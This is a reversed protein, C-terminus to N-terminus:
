EETFRIKWFRISSRKWTYSIYLTNGDAIVAPYSYEGAGSDLVMVEQFSQGDDASTFLTMPTREGWNRAVPNCVLFLRRTVTRVLDLGSNNNPMDTPMASSWSRGCDDSDSRYIHGETSRLLMHVHGPSSEWLTPQIVGRGYFSQESVPISSENKNVTRESRSGTLGQIYIEPQKHWSSGNDKSLDVFARWIGDEQSAPALIDDNALRIPKNRVPGRGGHNGPVLELPQSWTDGNTLSIRYMTQWRQIETGTKYFLLIKEESLRFLVPNWHATPEETICRPESWSGNLCKSLWIQVDNEGEKTGGFWACLFSGDPNKLLTSAHCMATPCHKMILQKDAQIIKM